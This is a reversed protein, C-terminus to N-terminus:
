DRALGLCHGNPDLQSGACDPRMAGAYTLNACRSGDPNTCGGAALTRGGSIHAHGYGLYLGPAAGAGALTFAALALTPLVARAPRRPRLHRRM